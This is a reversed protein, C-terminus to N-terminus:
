SQADLDTPLKSFVVRQIQLLRSPNPQPATASAFPSAVELDEGFFVVNTEKPQSGACKPCVCSEAHLVQSQASGLSLVARTSETCTPSLEAAENTLEKKSQYGSKKAANCVNIMLDTVQDLVPM